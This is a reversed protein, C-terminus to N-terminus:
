HIPLRFFYDSANRTAIRRREQAAREGPRLAHGGLLRTPVQWAKRLCGRAQKPLSLTPEAYLQMHQPLMQHKWQSTRV